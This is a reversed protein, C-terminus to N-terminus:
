RRGLRERLARSAGGVNTRRVMCYFLIGSLLILSSPEPVSSTQLLSYTVDDLAFSSGAPDGTIIVSAFGASSNVQIFEDPSSGPDGSCPAGALCALNNSFLSSSSALLANSSDFGQVTLPVTYTFFGGFSSVPSSFAVSIPGGSDIVVNSGSEPPFELENLSVGATAIIANSVTLNPYQTTVFTGDSLDEFTIVIPGALVAPSALLMISLAM